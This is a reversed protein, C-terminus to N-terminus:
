LRWQQLGKGILMAKKLSLFWMSPCIIQSRSQTERVKAQPSNQVPPSSLRTSHIGMHRDGWGSLGAGDGPRQEQTLHFGIGSMMQM